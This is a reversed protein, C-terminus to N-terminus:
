LGILVMFDLFNIIVIMLKLRIKSEVSNVTDKPKVMLFLLLLMLVDYVFGIDDTIAKLNLSILKVVLFRVGHRHLHVCRGLV